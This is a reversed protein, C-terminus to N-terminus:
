IGNWEFLLFQTKQLGMFNNDSIFIISRKGNPLQPGFTVGEINDIRKGISKFDILLKKKIPNKLSHEKLGPVNSIDEADSLDALYVRISNSLHGMSFSREVVLLKQEDLALIESIGNVYFGSPPIPRKTVKNLPYAYQAVSKGTNYDYKIIRCWYDGAKPHARDGDQYLPEEMSVFLTRYNNAFSLGEFVGNRRPGKEQESMSFQSPIPLGRILKGVKNAINVSPDTIIHNGHQDIIREGESTWVIEKTIPNFRIGEPDPVLMTKVQANPYLAGNFMRLSDVRLIKFHTFKYENVDFSFTYFRAPNINSRDDSIVYYVNQTSDYDIGSLGGVTTNEFTTKNPVIHENLFRLANTEPTSAHRFVSCSSLLIAISIISFLSSYKRM